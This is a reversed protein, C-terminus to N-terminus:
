VNSWHKTPFYAFFSRVSLVISNSVWVRDDLDVVCDLNVKRSSLDGVVDSEISTHDSHDSTTTVHASHTHDSVSLSVVTAEVNNVDLVGNVIGEGRSFAVDEDDALLLRPDTQWLALTDLYTM